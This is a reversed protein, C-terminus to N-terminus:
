QCARGVVALEMAGQSVGAFFVEHCVSEVKWVIKRGVMRRMGSRLTDPESAVCQEAAAISSRHEIAEDQQRQAPDGEQVADRTCIESVMGHLRNREVCVQRSGAVQLCSVGGGGGLWGVVCVSVCLCLGVRERVCESVDTSVWEGVRDRSVTVGWSEANIECATVNFNKISAPTAPLTAAVAFGYAGRRYTGGGGGGWVCVCVCV